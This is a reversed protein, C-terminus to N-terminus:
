TLARVALHAGLGFLGIFFCRRFVAESLRSRVWGGLAMGLLAPVLAAASVGITGWQILGTSALAAALALTSVTFLLGLAQILDDKGLGLAGLYPVAPIASVGTAATVLGTALGIAPGLWGEMHRAVTFRVASLGLAAYAMLAFGLAASSWAPAAGRLLSAGVLTGLVTAALLPWLRRLLAGFRPGAALQWVNTVFTPVVLLAAAQMPAMVIGLLGMAVPPLGLGVVGKVFGALSFALVAIVVGEVAFPM